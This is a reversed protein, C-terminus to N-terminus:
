KVFLTVRWLPMFREIRTEPAKVVRSCRQYQIAVELLLLVYRTQRITESADREWVACPTCVQARAAPISISPDWGNSSTDSSLVQGSKGSEEHISSSSLSSQQSFVHKATQELLAAADEIPWATNCTDSASDLSSSHHSYVSKEEESESSEAESENPSQVLIQKSTDSIGIQIPRSTEKPEHRGQNKLDQLFHM